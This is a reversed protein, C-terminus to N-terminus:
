SPGDVWFYFLECEATAYDGLKMFKEALPFHDIRFGKSHLLMYWNSSRTYSLLGGIFHLLVLGMFLFLQFDKEKFWM